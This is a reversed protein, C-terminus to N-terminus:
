PDESDGISMKKTKELEGHQDERPRVQIQGLWTCEVGGWKEKRAQGKGKTKEKGGVQPGSVRQEDRSV